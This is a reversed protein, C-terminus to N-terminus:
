TFTFIIRNEHFMKVLQWKTKCLWSFWLPVKIGRWQNCFQWFCNIGEFHWSVPLCLLATWCYFKDGSRANLCHYLLQQTNHLHKAGDQVPHKFDPHGSGPFAVFVRGLSSLSVKGSVLMLVWPLLSLESSLNGLPSSLSLVSDGLGFGHNWASLWPAKSQSDGASGGGPYGDLVLLTLIDKIFAHISVPRNLVRKGGPPWCFHRGGV